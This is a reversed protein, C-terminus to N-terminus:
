KERLNSDIFCLPSHCEAEHNGPLVMYAQVAAYSFSRMRQLATTGVATGLACLRARVKTSAYPQITTMYGDWTSDYNDTLPDHLFGDDAPALYASDTVHQHGGAHVCPVWGGAYSVDGVHWIFDLGAFISCHSRRACAM